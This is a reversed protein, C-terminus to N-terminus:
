CHRFLSFLILVDVKVQRFIRNGSFAVNEYKIFGEPLKTRAPQPLPGGTFEIPDDEEVNLNEENLNEIDNFALIDALAAIAEVETDLEKKTESDDSHAEIPIQDLQAPRARSEHNAPVGFNM